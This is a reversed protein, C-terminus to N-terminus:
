YANHKYSFFGLIGGVADFIFMLGILKHKGGILLAPIALVLGAIFKVVLKLSRFLKNTLSANLLQTINSFIASERMVRNLIFKVSCRSLPVIDFAFAKESKVIKFGKKILSMTLFTDEGGTHAFRNNFPGDFTKLIERNILLANTAAFPLLDGDKGPSEIFYDKIYAPINEKPFLPPANGYVMDANFEDKIKFLEALCNEDMIQDDDVFFCYDANSALRVTTNRAFTIGSNPEHAWRVEIGTKREFNKAIEETRPPNENDAITVIIKNLYKEFNKQKSISELLSELGQPRKFTCICIALTVM